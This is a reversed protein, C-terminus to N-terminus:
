GATRQLLELVFGAAGRLMVGRQRLSLLAGASDRDAFRLGSLDLALQRHERLCSRCSQVLEPLERGTLRGELALVSERPGRDLRTVRLQSPLVAFVRV